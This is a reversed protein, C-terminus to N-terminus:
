KAAWAPPRKEMFARAGEKFDESKMAKEFEDLSEFYVEHPDRRFLEHLQRKHVAIANPAGGALHRALEVARTLLQDDPVVEDVLGIRLAEQANVIEGSYLLRAAQSLGVLKPLIIPGAGMDAVLGRRAFVWGIRGSEGAIRMDCTALVEAGWGVAAGNVACVVPKPINFGFWGDPWGTDERIPFRTRMPATYTPLAAQVDPSLDAGACFARGRGTLVVALVSPDAACEDGMKNLDALTTRGVANLKEPRNFSIIAVNGDRELLLPASEDM